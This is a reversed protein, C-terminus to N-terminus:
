SSMEQKQFYERIALRIISAISSGLQKSEKELQKRQTENFGISFQKRKM